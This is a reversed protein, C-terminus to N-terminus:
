QLVVEVYLCEHTELVVNPRSESKKFFSKMQSIIFM